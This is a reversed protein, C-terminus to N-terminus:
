RMRSSVAMAERILRAALAATSGNDYPPSVEVVDFGVMREGIAGILKKVDYPTIGFPEPTGTGPAYAPDIGDIDVTLYIRDNGIHDMVREIAQDMGEDLISFSDVFFPLGEDKEEKSISRAGIVAVNAEGVQDACRRMVCAHSNKLGMYEQRYDTHADVCIVSVGDGFAKVVPITVSHEGGITIPFKGADVIRSAEIYASDVMHDVHVHDELDGMDHVKLDGVDHGHEFLHMEFNYSAKRVAQPGDRCGARFSTTRDFPVGMIVYDADEFSHEADAFSVGPLM